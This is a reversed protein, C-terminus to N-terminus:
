ESKLLKLGVSGKTRLSVKLGSVECNVSGPAAVVAIMGAYTCSSPLCPPLFCGGADFHTSYNIMFVEEVQHVRHILLSMAYSNVSVITSM